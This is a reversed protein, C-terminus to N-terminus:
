ISALRGTQCLKELIKVPICGEWDPYVFIHMKDGLSRAQM